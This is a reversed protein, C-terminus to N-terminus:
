HKTDREGSELKEIVMAGLQAITEALVRTQQEPPVSFVIFDALSEAMRLAIEVADASQNAELYKDVVENIDCHLCESM